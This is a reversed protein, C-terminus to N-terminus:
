RKDTIAERAIRDSGEVALIRFGGGAVQDGGGGDCSGGCGGRVGLLSVRKTSDHFKPSFAAREPSPIRYGSSAFSALWRTATWNAGLTTVVTDM